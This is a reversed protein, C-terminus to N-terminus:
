NCYIGRFSFKKLTFKSKYGKTIVFNCFYKLRKQFQLFSRRSKLFEENMTTMLTLLEAKYYNEGNAKMGRGRSTQHIETWRWKLHSGNEVICDLEFQGELCVRNLGVEFKDSNLRVFSAIRDFALVLITAQLKM